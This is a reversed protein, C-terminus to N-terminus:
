KKRREESREESKEKKARRKKRKKRHEERREESKEERGKIGGGERKEKEGKKGKTVTFLFLIGDYTNQLARVYIKMITHM